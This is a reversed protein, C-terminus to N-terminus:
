KNLAGRFAYATYRANYFNIKDKTNGFDAIMRARMYEGKENPMSFESLVWVFYRTDNPGIRAHKTITYMYQKNDTQCSFKNM